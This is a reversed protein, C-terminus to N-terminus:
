GDVFVEAISWRGDCRPCEVRGDGVGHHRGLLQGDRPCILANV